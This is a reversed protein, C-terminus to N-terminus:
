KDNREVKEKESAYNSKCAAVCCKEIMKDINEQVQLETRENWNEKGSYNDDAKLFDWDRMLPFTELKLLGQVCMMARTRPLM